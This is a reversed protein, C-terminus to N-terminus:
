FVTYFREFNKVLPKFIIFFSGHKAMLRYIYIPSPRKAMMQHLVLMVMIIAIIANIPGM